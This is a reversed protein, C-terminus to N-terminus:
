PTPTASPTASATGTTEVAPAAGAKVVADKLSGQKDWEKGNILITPTGKISDKTAATDTLQKVWGRYTGKDICEDLGTAGISNALKTLEVNSLGKSLEEPQNAYLLANFEYFKEPYTNAVCFSTNAARSSYNTGSSMSDLFGVTRYEIVGTGDEIMEDIETAFTTEFAKCAPCIYDQYIAVHAPAQKTGEQPTTPVEPLVKKGKGVITGQQVTNAPQVVTSYDKNNSKGALIVGAVIAAIVIIPVIIAFIKILKKKKAQRLAQQERLRRAEERAQERKENKTLRENDSM